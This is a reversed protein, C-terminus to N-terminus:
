GNKERWYDRARRQHCQRCRINNVRPMLEYVNEPTIPHGCPFKTTIPGFHSIRDRYPDWPLDWYLAWWWLLGKSRLKNCRQCAPVLNIPDNDHTDENLHDVTLHNEIDKAAWQLARGCWYCEPSDHDWADDNWHNVRHEYAKGCPMRVPEPVDWAWVQRYKAKPM